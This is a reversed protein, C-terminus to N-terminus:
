EVFLDLAEGYGNYALGRWNWDPFRPQMERGDTARSWICKGAGKNVKVKARWLSWAWRLDLGKARVEEPPELIKAETWTRGEDGSVEVKRVPGNRGGPLAYGAVEITGDAASPTVRSGSRPFGIVSNVPMDMLAPIRNWWKDSSMQDNCHVPLIKYDRQQYHNQSEFPQVTITDVWKVSRAGAVGPVVIRVPAGRAATLPQGNAEVAVVVEDEASMARALPISAGYWGEEQCATAHSAFQVHLGGGGGDGRVGGRGGGGGGGGGGDVVSDVRELAAGGGGAAVAAASSDFVVGAAGLVDRLRPGRWVCCMAAGDFWDIGKVERLRTRMEHRRNGACQLAAVVEHQPFRTRLDTPTLTLSPPPPANGTASTTTTTNITVTLTHTTPNIHPIPSSLLEGIPPERNLPEKVSYEFKTITSGITAM